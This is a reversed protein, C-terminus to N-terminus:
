LLVESVAAHGLFDRPSASAGYAGSQFIAILDGHDVTPLAAEPCLVDLPTCLRGVVRVSDRAEARMNAPTFCPMSRVVAQGLNGSAALHQHMGGDTVALKIGNSWKVDIVRCVYVGAPGVVYRGLELVLRADPNERLLEARIEGIAEGIPELDLSEDTGYYPIGFGGGLNLYSISLGNAAALGRAVAWCERQVAAVREGDLSQTGWYLHFGLPEISHSRCLAVANEIEEVAIGFQSPVGTMRLGGTVPLSSPNVRLVVRPSRGQRTAAAAVREIQRTSEVNVTAGAAIAQEFELDDRGPGSFQICDGDVGTCVARLLERHSAVDFGDLRVALFDVLPQFPNAKISYFLEVGPVAGRLTQLTEAVIRRDYVYTPTGGALTVVDEIARGGVVIGGVEDLDWMGRCLTLPDSM